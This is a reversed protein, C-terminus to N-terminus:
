RNVEVIQGAALAFIGINGSLNSPLQVPSAFPNNESERAESAIRSFDYHTKTISSWVLLLKTEPNIGQQILLRLKKEKGDFSLDSIINSIYDFSQETAPDLSEAHLLDIIIEDEFFVQLLTAEYYNAVQKPDSFFIDVASKPDGEENIGANEVYQVESLKISQPITQEGTVPEFGDKKLRVKYSMGEKLFGNNPAIYNYGWFIGNQRYPVEQLVLTKGDESELILEAGQVLNKDLAPNQDIPVTSTVLATISDIYTNGFLHLVLTPKHEPIDIEVTTSLFDQCSSLLTFLSIFFLFRPM